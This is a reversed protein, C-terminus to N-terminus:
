VQPLRGNLELRIWLFRYGLAGGFVSADKLEVEGDIGSAARM